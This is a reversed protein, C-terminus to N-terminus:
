PGLIDSRIVSHCLEPTGQCVYLGSHEFGGTEQTYPLFEVYLGDHSGSPGANFVVNYAEQRGTRPLIKMMIDIGASLADALDQLEGAALHHLRSHSCDTVTYVMEYPRRMWPHVSLTGTSYERLILGKGRAQRNLEAAVTRGERRFFDRNSQARLPETHTAGIQQHGHVLSGGVLHGYNKIITVFPYREALRRELRALRSIVVLRDPGSMTHWDETHVSSTWQILHLGRVPGPLGTTGATDGGTNATGSVEMPLVMPYLNFNIFTFGESLLAIDVIPTMRGACVVCSSDGTDGEPDVSDPRNDHPRRARAANYVVPMNDRPDRFCLGDPTYGHRRALDMAIEEWPLSPDARLAEAREMSLRSSEDTGAPETSNKM